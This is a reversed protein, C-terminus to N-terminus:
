TWRSSCSEQLPATFVSLSRRMQSGVYVYSSPQLRSTDDREWASRQGHTRDQLIMYRSSFSESLSFSLPFVTLGAPTRRWGFRQQDTIRQHRM